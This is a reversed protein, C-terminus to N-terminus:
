ASRSATRPGSDVDRSRADWWSKVTTSGLVLAAGALAWPGPREGHLLLTWVPNLLPEVLLLLSAELAPVGGLGRLMLGYAGAIQFVGLYALTAWDLPGGAQWPWAMPLCLAAALLNGLVLASTGGAGDRGLWRLGAITLAWTVGSATALVNGRVPDPATGQAPESGVFFCVLGAAIGLMLPADRRRLREGLLWPGLLLLYLPATSQLFITNASTTLKNATVFLIMTAAYGLSVLAPRVGLGRLAGPVVLALTAAAIVSRVGAVQWSGFDTGKIAAGGTSFLVASLVLLLRARAASPPAM